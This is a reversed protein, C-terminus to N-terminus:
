SVRARLRFSEKWESALATLRAVDAETLLRRRQGKPSREYRREGFEERYLSLLNRVTKVSIGLQEAVGRITLRSAAAATM